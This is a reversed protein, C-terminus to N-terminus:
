VKGLKANYFVKLVHYHSAGANHRLAVEEATRGASNVQTRDAGHELLLAVMDADGKKAARHLPYTTNVFNRKHGNVGDKFGNEKLFAELRAKKQQQSHASSGSTSGSCNSSTEKVLCGPVVSVLSPHLGPPLQLRFEEELSKAQQLPVKTQHAAAAAGASACPQWRSRDDVLLHEERWALKETNAAPPLCVVEGQTQNNLRPENRRGERFASEDQSDEQTALIKTADLRVVDPVESAVKEVCSTRCFLLNPLGSVALM